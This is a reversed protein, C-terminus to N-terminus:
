IEGDVSTLSEGGRLEEMMEAGRELRRRAKAEKGEEKAIKKRQVNAEQEERRQRKLAERGAVKDKLARAEEPTKKVTAHYM